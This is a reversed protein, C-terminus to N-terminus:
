AICLEAVPLNLMLSVQVDGSVRRTKLRLGGYASEFNAIGLSFLNQSSYLLPWVSTRWLHRARPQSVEAPALLATRVLPWWWQQEAHGDGGRRPSEGPARRLRLGRCRTHVAVAPTSQVRAHSPSCLHRTHTHAHTHAPTHPLRCTHM